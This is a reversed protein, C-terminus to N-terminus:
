IYRGTLADNPYKSLAPLVPILPDAGAQTPDCFFLYSEMFEVLTIQEESPSIVMLTLHALLFMLLSIVSVSATAKKFPM